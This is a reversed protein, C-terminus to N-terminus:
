RTSAGTRSRMKWVWAAGFLVALSAGIAWGAWRVQRRARAQPTETVQLQTLGFPGSQVAIPESGRLDVLTLPSTHTSIAGDAGSASEALLPDPKGPSPTRALAVVRDRTPTAISTLVLAWRYGSSSTVMVSGATWFGGRDQWDNYEALSGESSVSQVVGRNASANWGGQATYTVPPEGVTAVAKWKSESCETVKWRRTRPPLDALGGTTFGLVDNLYEFRLDPYDRGRPPQGASVLTVESKYWMWSDGEAGGSHWTTPDPGQEAKSIRWRGNGAVLYRQMNVGKEAADRVQQQRGRLPHDPYASLDRSLAEATAADIPIRLNVTWSAEIAFAGGIKDGLSSREDVWAQVEQVSQAFVIRSPCVFAALCAATALFPYRPAVRIM